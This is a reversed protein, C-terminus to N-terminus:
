GLFLVGLCQNGSEVCGHIQVKCEQQAYEGNGSINLVRGEVYEVPPDPSSTGRGFVTIQNRGRKKGRSV